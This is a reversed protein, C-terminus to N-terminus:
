ESMHFYCIYLYIFSCVLFLLLICIYYCRIIFAIYLSIFLQKDTYETQMILNILQLFNCHTFYTCSTHQMLKYTNVDWIAQPFFNRRLRKTKALKHSNHYINKIVKLQPTLIRLSKAQVLVVQHSHGPPLATSDQHHM